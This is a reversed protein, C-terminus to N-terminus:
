PKPNKTTYSFINYILQTCLIYVLRTGIIYELRPFTYRLSVINISLQLLMLLKHEVLILLFWVHVFLAKNISQNVNINCLM